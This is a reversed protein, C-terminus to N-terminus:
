QTNRQWAEIFERMRRSASRSIRLERDTLVAGHQLLLETIDIHDGRIAYYLAHRTRASVGHNLLFEVVATNGMDVNTFLANEYFNPPVHTHNMLVELCRVGRAQEAAINLNEQSINGREIVQQLTHADNQDLARWFQGDDDSGYGSEDDDDSDEEEDDSDSEPAPGNYLLAANGGAPDPAGGALEFIQAREELTFPPGRTPDVNQFQDHKKYRLWGNPGALSSVNYCQAGKKFAPLKIDDGSIPDERVKILVRKKKPTEEGEDGSEEVDEVVEEMCEKELEESTTIPPGFVSM